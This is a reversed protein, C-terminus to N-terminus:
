SYRRAMTRWYLWSDKQEKPVSGFALCQRLIFLMHARCRIRQENLYRDYCVPCRPELSMEALPAEYVRGCLCTIETTQRKM